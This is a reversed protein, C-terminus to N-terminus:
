FFNNIDGLCGTVTGRTAIVYNTASFWAGSNIDDDEGVDEVVKQMYEQTSMLAGDSDLIFVKEKLLKDQQVVGAPDPIIRVPNPTPFSSEVCTNADIQKELKTAKEYMSLYLEYDKDSGEKLFTDILARNEQSIDNCKEYANRLDDKTGGNLFRKDELGLSFIVGEHQSRDNYDGSCSVLNSPSQCFFDVGDYSAYGYVEFDVVNLARQTNNGEKGHQYPTDLFYSYGLDEFYEKLLQLDKKLEPTLTPAPMDFWSKGREMKAIFNNDNLFLVIVHFIFRDLMSEELLILLNYNINRAAEKAVTMTLNLPIAVLFNYMSAPETGTWSEVVPNKVCGITPSEFYLQFGTRPRAAMDGVQAAAIPSMKRLSM